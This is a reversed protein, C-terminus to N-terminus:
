ASRRSVGAANIFRPDGFENVGVRHVAFVEGAKVRDSDPVALTGIIEQKSPFATHQHHAVGGGAM